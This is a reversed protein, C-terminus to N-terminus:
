YDWEWFVGAGAQSDQGIESELTINPTLEVELNAAGSNEGSGSEFELYVDDTLYKGAGVTTEGEGDSDIRIDDLGTLNRIESLPDFGGGGKGSFRRLTQTLQVAQFPSISSLDRGFLIRALVEDEPLSPIASFSIKPDEITGGINVRAKIDDVKTEAIIDLIPNAPIRGLFNLNTQILEFRKGFETYRGRRAKLVGNFNPDDLNGDIKLKGGLEADLGWGRVFIKDDAIFEIAVKVKSLFSDDKGGEEEVINLEPITSTFKEPITIDIYNPQVTGTLNYLNNATTLKLNANFKGDALDSDLLHFDEVDLNLEAAQPLFNNLGVFGNASILGGENDNATLSTVTVRDKDMAIAANIDFLDIGLNEDSFQSNTLNAQGKINPSYVSGGININSKLLGSFDYNPPLFLRSLTGLELDLVANGDISQTDPLTFEFPYLSLTVPTAAKVKLTKISEGQGTINLNAQGKQYQVQMDLKIQPIKKNVSFASLDIDALINPQSMEGKISAQTKLNTNRLIDPVNKSLKGLNIADSTLNIDIFEKNIDGNIFLNQNNLKVTAKFNNASPNKTKLNKLSAKTDFSFPIDFNGNGKLTLAYNEPNINELTSTLQKIKLADRELNNVQLNLKTPWINKINPFLVNTNIKQVSINQYKINNAMLSLDVQQNGDNASLTSQITAQGYIDQQILDKYRSFQQINANISGNALLTQLDFNVQGKLDIDPAFGTINSAIILNESKEIDSQLSIPIDQYSSLIKVVFPNLIAPNLVSYQTQTDLIIDGLGRQKLLPLSLRGNADLNLIDQTGSVKIKLGLEGKELANNVEGFNDSKITTIFNINGEERLISSGSADITYLKSNISFDKLNIISNESNFNAVIQIKNPLYPTKSIKLIDPQFDLDLDLTTETIDIKGQLIPSLLLPQGAIEESIELHKIAITSINLRDLYLDPLSFNSLYLGQPEKEKPAESSPLRHVIAKDIILKLSLDRLAISAINLGLKTNNATFLIGKDDLVELDKVILKTLPFYQFGEFKIKYNSNKLAVDIQDQIWVEGKDSNLWQLGGWLAVQSLIFLAVCVSLVWLITKGFLKPIKQLIHKM